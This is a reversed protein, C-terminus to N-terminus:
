WIIILIEKLERDAVFDDSELDGDDTIVIM